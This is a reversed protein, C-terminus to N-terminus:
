KDSGGHSTNLYEILRDMNILFKSGVRIHVIEGKLCARRLYDYSLGSLASANKIPQMDPIKNMVEPRKPVLVSNLEHIQSNSM